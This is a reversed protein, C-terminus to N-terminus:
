RRGGGRQGTNSPAPASHGGGSSSPPPSYSPASAPRDAGRQPTDARRSSGGSSPPPASPSPTYRPVQYREPVDARGTTPRRPPRYTERGSTTPSQKSRGVTATRETEKGGRVAAGPKRVTAGGSPRAVTSSRGAVPLPAVSTRTGGTGTRTTGFTRTNGYAGVPYSTSV